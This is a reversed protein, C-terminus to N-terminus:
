KLLLSAPVENYWEKVENNAIMKIEDNTYNKGFGNNNVWNNYVDICQDFNKIIKQKEALTQLKIPIVGALVGQKRLQDIGQYVEVYKKGHSMLYNQDVLSLNNQLLAPALDTTNTNTYNELLKVDSSGFDALLKHCKNWDSWPISFIDNWTKREQDPFIDLNLIYKEIDKMDNEYDFYSSIQFYKDSWKIYEQYQNLHHVMKQPHISIGNKYIEQFIRTKEEPSYVNLKKTVGHIGWSLAHEFLNSRRASIIYFNENLYNYFKIQEPIPDDRGDFWYKAIRGTKYHDANHLLQIIEDLSQFDFTVGDTSWKKGLVEKNFIDSYYSKIGNTLEHLNIVPKDYKHGAMYVTILRQLLTSGVRDPTLILVNMNGSVVVGIVHKLEQAQIPV